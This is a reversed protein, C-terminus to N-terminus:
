PREAVAERIQVLEGAPGALPRAREAAGETWLVRYGDHPPRTYRAILRM